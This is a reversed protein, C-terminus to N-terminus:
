TRSRSTTREPTPIHFIVNALNGGLKSIACEYQRRVPASACVVMVKQRRSAAAVAAMASWREAPIQRGKM